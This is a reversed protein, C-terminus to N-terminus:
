CFFLYDQYNKTILITKAKTLNDAVRSNIRIVRNESNNFYRSYICNRRKCNYLNTNNWILKTERNAKRRFNIPIFYRAIRSDIRNYKINTDSWNGNEDYNAIDDSIEIIKGNLMIYAKEFTTYEQTLTNLLYIYTGGNNEIETAIENTLLSKDINTVEVKKTYTKGTVNDKVKFTYTGNETVIYTDSTETYRGNETIVYKDSTEGDPNTITYGEIIKTDKNYFLPGICCEILFDEYLNENDLCNWLKEETDLIGYGEIELAFKNLAKELTDCEDTEFEKNASKPLMERIMEKKQEKTLSNLFSFIEEEGDSIDINPMTMGEVSDVTLFVAGSKETEPQKSINIKVRSYSIEKLISGDKKKITIIEQERDIEDESLLRRSILSELITDAGEQVQYSEKNIFNNQKWMGIEDEVQSARNELRAEKSKAIIGNEDLLLSISVGALILLVVITVVM